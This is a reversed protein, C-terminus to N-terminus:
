RSTFTYNGSPVEYASGESNHHVLRAKRPASVDNGSPIRVTATTNAPVEVSLTFKGDQEKWSSSIRGYPSQLSGAAHTLGGGPQPHITFHRYGPQEPDPAIGLITRYM